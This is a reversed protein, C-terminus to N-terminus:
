LVAAVPAEHRAVVHLAFSQEDVEREAFLLGAQEAVDAPRPHKVLDVSSSSGRTVRHAAVGSTVDVDNVPRSYRKWRKAPSFALVRSSPAANRSPALAISRTPLVRRM